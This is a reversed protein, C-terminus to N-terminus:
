NFNDWGTPSINPYEFWGCSRPSSSRPWSHLITFIQFRPSIGTWIKPWNLYCGFIRNLTGEKVEVRWRGSRYGSYWNGLISHFTMLPSCQADLNVMIGTIQVIRSHEESETCSMSRPSNLKNEQEMWCAGFIAPSFHWSNLLCKGWLNNWTLQTNKKKLTHSNVWEQSEFNSSPWRDANM